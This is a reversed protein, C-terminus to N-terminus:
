SKRNRPIPLDRQMTLAMRSCYEIALQKQNLLKLKDIDPHDKMFVLLKSKPTSKYTELLWEFRDFSNDIKPSVPKYTGFFHDPNKKYAELEYDELTNTAIIRKGNDIKYVCYAIEEREIVCADELTGIRENGEKDNVLYDNGILLPPLADAKFALSPDQGDFTSPVTQNKLSKFLDYMDRYKEKAAYAEKISSFPTGFFYDPLKFGETVVGVRYDTENPEYHYPLNIIFVFAHPAPEGHIMMTQEAEKVDRHANEMWESWKGGETDKRNDPVNPDIFVIREYPSEKKLADRLKRTVNVKGDKPAGQAEDKGLIGKVSRAKAEVSYKRKSQKHIATCETHTTQPASENELEIEFGAKILSAFVFTEFYAGHFQDIHKLRTILIEQLEVNHSLLYLNYALNLYAAAAGNM